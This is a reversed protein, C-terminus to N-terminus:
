AGGEREIQHKKRYRIRVAGTGTKKKERRVWGEIEKVISENGVYHYAQEDIIREAAMM